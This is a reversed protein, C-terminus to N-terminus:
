AASGNFVTRALDTSHLHDLIEQRRGVRQHRALVVDLYRETEGAAADFIEFARGLGAAHGILAHDARQHIGISLPLPLRLKTSNSSGTSPNLRPRFGDCPM